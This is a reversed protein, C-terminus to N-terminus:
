VLAQVMISDSGDPETLVFGALEGSDGISFANRFGDPSIIAYIKSLGDVSDSFQVMRGDGADACVVGNFAVLSGVKITKNKGADVIQRCTGSIEAFLLPDIETYDGGAKLYGEKLDRYSAFFIDKQAIGEAMASQAEQIASKYGAQDGVAAARAAQSYGLTKRNIANMWLNLASYYDACSPATDAVSPMQRIFSSLTAQYDEIAAYNGSSAMAYLSSDIDSTANLFAKFEDSLPYSLAERYDVILAAEQSASTSHSSTDAQSETQSTCAQLFFALCIAMLAFSVRSRFMMRSDSNKELAKWGSNAFRVIGKM